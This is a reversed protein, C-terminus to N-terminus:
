PVSGQVAGKQAEKVKLVNLKDGATLRTAGRAKARDLSQVVTMDTVFLPEVLSFLIYIGTPGHM